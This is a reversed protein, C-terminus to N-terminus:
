RLFNGCSLDNSLTYTKLMAPCLFVCTFCSVRETSSPTQGICSKKM